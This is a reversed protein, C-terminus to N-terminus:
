VCLVILHVVTLDVLLVCVFLSAEYVSVELFDGGKQSIGYLSYLLCLSRLVAQVAKDQIKPLKDSFVKVTM